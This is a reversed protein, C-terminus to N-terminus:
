GSVPLPRRGYGMAVMSRTCKICFQNPSLSGAISSASYSIPDIRINAPNLMVPGIGSSVVMRLKRFIVSSCSKAGSM